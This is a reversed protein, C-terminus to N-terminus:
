KVPWAQPQPADGAWWCQVGGQGVRSRAHEWGDGAEGDDFSKGIGQDGIVM